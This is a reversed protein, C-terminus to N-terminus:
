AIVDWDCWGPLLMFIVFMYYVWGVFDDGSDAEQMQGAESM